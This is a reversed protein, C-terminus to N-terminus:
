RTRVKFAREYGKVDEDYNSGGLLYRYNKISM